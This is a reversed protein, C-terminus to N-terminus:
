FHPKLAQKVRDCLLEYGKDNPHVADAMYQAKNWMGQFSNQLFIVGSKEAVRKVEPLRSTDYPYGPYSPPNLGIHLVLAGSETLREYIKELSDFTESPSIDDYFIDNGGLSVIVVSPELKAVNDVERLSDASTYGPTARIEVRETSLKRMCGYLSNNKHSSGTGYAISDGFLVVPGDNYSKSNRIEEKAGSGDGNGSCGVVWALVVILSLYKM